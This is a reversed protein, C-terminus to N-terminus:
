TFIIKPIYSSSAVTRDDMEIYDIFVNETSGVYGYVGIGTQTNDFSGDTTDIDWTGPDSGTAAWYNGKLDDNSDIGMALQVIYWTDDSLTSISQTVLTSESTDRFESLRISSGSRLMLGYAKEQGSNTHARGLVGARVASIDPSRIAVRVNVNGDSHGSDEWYGDHQAGSSTIDMARSGEHTPTSVVAYSNNAGFAPHGTSPDDSVSFGEFDELYVQAM